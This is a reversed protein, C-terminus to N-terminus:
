PTMGAPAADEVPPLHAADPADMAAGPADPAADPADLVLEPADPAAEARPSDPVTELDVHASAEPGSPQAGEAM